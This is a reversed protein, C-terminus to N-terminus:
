SDDPVQQALLAELRAIEKASKGPRARARAIKQSIDLQEYKNQRAAAEAAKTKKDKAM